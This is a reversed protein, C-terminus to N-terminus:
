PSSQPEILALQGSVQTQPDRVEISEPTIREVVFRDGIRSGTQAAVTAGNSLLFAEGQGARFVVGLLKMQALEARAQEEALQEPTKPPPEKKVVRPARKVAALKPRFLDRVVTSTGPTAASVVQLTLDDASTEVGPIAIAPGAPRATSGVTWRWVNLLALIVGAIVLFLTRHKM